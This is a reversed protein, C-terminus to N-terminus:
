IVSRRTPDTIPYAGAALLREILDPTGNAKAFSIEDDTVGTFTLFDVRGSPLAFGSPFTEPHSVIANRLVCDAKGSIPARLPIRDGVGLPGRGQFRGASLLIDFALMNQLYTIAWDGQRTSAFLFEVGAGSSTDVEDQRVGDDWDWPNSHGSTAYLWCPRAETPGFEIIGYFLWRPDIEQQRFRASFLEASLPFIGRSNPGFLTPYVDEERICWIEELDM